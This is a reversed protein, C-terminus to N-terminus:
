GMSRGSALMCSQSSRWHFFWTGLLHWDLRHGFPALLYTGNRLLCHVRDSFCGLSYRQGYASMRALQMRKPRYEGCLVMAAVMMGLNQAFAFIFLCGTLM